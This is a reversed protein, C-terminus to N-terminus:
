GYQSLNELAIMGQEKDLNFWSEVILLRAIYALVRDIGFDQAEEMEEIKDFRYQLMARELKRPDSSNDM